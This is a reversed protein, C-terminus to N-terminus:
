HFVAPVCEPHAHAHREFLCRLTELAILSHGLTRPIYVHTSRAIM